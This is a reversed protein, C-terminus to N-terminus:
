VVNQLYFHSDWYLTSPPDGYAYENLGAEMSWLTDDAFIGWSLMSGESIPAGLDIPPTADPMLPMDTLRTDYLAMNDSAPPTTVPTHEHRDILINSTTSSINNRSPAYRERPLGASITSEPHGPLSTSALRQTRTQIDGYLNRSYKRIIYGSLAEYVAVYREADPLDVGMQKLVGGCTIVADTSAKISETDIDKVVSLCYMVSFGATFLMQFYSRTYTIKKIEFLKWFATIARVASQLCLSLLDRPPINNRKPVIDIAKRILQLRERFYLLDYWEQTEYLTRPSQFIPTDLRWHQLDGLLEDLESYIVGTALLSSGVSSSVEKMGFKSQIRSTIQRLRLCACFVSMETTEPTSASNLSLSACFSNLNPFSGSMEAAEIEEDNANAPFSVKIYREAIACPRNLTISSYRDIMYCEWFVRRQLQEHMLSTAATSIPPKHLGQEICLRMCLRLIEWISTGAM